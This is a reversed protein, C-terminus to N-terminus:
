FGFGTPFGSEYATHELRYVFGTKLTHRGIIKTVNDLLTYAEAATNMNVWTTPRVQHQGWGSHWHELAARPLVSRLSDPQGTVESVRSESRHHQGSLALQSQHEDM